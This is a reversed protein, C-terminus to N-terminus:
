QRWYKGAIFSIPFGFAAILAAMNKLMGVLNIPRTVIHSLYPVVLLNMILWIVIGILFALVIKNRVVGILTPYLKFFIFTFILAILYHFLAGYVVMETGGAAVAERGFFGGAIYKFIAAIPVGPNIVMAAIADLTGCLLWTLIIQKILGPNQTKSTM